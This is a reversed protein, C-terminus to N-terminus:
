SLIFYRHMEINLYRRVPLLSKVKKVQLISGLVKLVKIIRIIAVPLQFTARSRHETLAM